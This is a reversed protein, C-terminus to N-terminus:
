GGGVHAGHCCGGFAPPAARTRARAVGFREALEDAIREMEAHTGRVWSPTSSRASRPSCRERDADRLMGEAMPFLVNDEKAIHERM